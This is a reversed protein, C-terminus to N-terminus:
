VIDESKVHMTGILVIANCVNGKSSIVDNSSEFVAYFACDYSRMLTRLTQIDGSGDYGTRWYPTVFSIGLGLNYGSPGLSEKTDKAAKEIVINIKEKLDTRTRECFYLWEMKAEAIAINTQKSFYLDVRGNVTNDINGKQSSYEELAVGGSRWVAGSFASVNARENYWYLCDKYQEQEIFEKHLQAWQQLIPRIWAINQDNVKIEIQNKIMEAEQKFIM